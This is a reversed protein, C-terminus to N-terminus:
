QACTPPTVRAPDYAVVAGRISAAFGRRDVERVAVRLAIDVVAPESADIESRVPVAVGANADAGAAARIKCVM